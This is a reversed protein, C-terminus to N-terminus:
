AKSLRSTEERDKIYCNLIPLIYLKRRINETSLMQFGYLFLQGWHDSSGVLVNRHPLSSLLLVWFSHNEDDLLNKKLGPLGPHCWLQYTPLIVFMSSPNDNLTKQKMIEKSVPKSGGANRQM